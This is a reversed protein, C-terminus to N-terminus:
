GTLKRRLEVVLRASLMAKKAAEVFGQGRAGQRYSLSSKDFSTKAKAFVMEAQVIKEDPLFYDLAAVFDLLEDATFTITIRDDSM